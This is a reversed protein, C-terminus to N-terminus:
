GIAWHFLAFGGVWFIHPFLFKGLYEHRLLTKEEESLEKAEELRRKSYAYLRNLVFSFLLAFICFGQAALSYTPLDIYKVFMWKGGSILVFLMTSTWQFSSAIASLKSLIKEIAEPRYNKVDHGQEKIELALRKWRAFLVTALGIACILPIALHRIDFQAGRITLITAVVLILFFCGATCLSSAFRPERNPLTKVRHLLVNLVEKRM